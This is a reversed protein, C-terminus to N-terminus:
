SPVLGKSVLKGGDVVTYFVANGEPEGTADFKIHKTIGDADYSAIYDALDKRTVKGDAIGVATRWIWITTSLVGAGIPLGM